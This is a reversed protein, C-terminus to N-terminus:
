GIGTYRVAGNYMVKLGILHPSEAPQVYDNVVQWESPMTVASTGNVQIVFQDGPNGVGITSLTVPSTATVIQNVIGELDISGHPSTIYYNSPRHERWNQRNTIVPELKHDGGDVRQWIRGKHIVLIEDDDGNQKIYFGKEALVPHWQAIVAGGALQWNLHGQGLLNPNVGADGGSRLSLDVLITQTLEVDRVQAFVRISTNGTRWFRIDDSDDAQAAIIQDLIVRATESNLYNVWDANATGDGVDPAISQDVAEPDEVSGKVEPSNLFYVGRTPKFYVLQGSVYGAADAVAQDYEVLGPETVNGPDNASEVLLWAYAGPVGSLLGGRHLGDDTEVSQNLQASDNVTPM